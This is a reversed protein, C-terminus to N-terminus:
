TERLAGVLLFTFLKMSQNWSWLGSECSSDVNISCLSSKTAIESPCSHPQSSSTTSSVRLMQRGLLNIFTCWGRGKDRRRRWGGVGFGSV